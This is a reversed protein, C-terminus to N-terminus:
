RLKKAERLEEIRRVAEHRTGDDADTALRELSEATTNPHKAVCQRIFYDNENALYTLITAPTTPNRALSILVCRAPDKAFRALVAEPCKPNEAVVKRVDPDPHSSLLELVDSPVNSNGVLALSIRTGKGANRALAELTSRPANPNGGVAARIGMWRDKGLRELTDPATKPNAAVACRVMEARDQALAELIDTGIKENEAAVKRVTDSRHEAIEKLIEATCSPHQTIYEFLQVGTGRVLIKLVAETANPHKVVVFRTERNGHEAFHALIAEPADARKAIIKQVSEDEDDCLADLIKKPTEPHRAVEMRAAICPSKMLKELLEHPPKTDLFRRLESSCYTLRKQEAEKLIMDCQQEQNMAPLVELAKKATEGTKEPTASPSATQGPQAGNARRNSAKALSVLNGREDIAANPLDVSAHKEINFVEYKVGDIELSGGHCLRETLADAKASERVIAAPKGSFEGGRARYNESQWDGPLQRFIAEAVKGSIKVDEVTVPLDAACWTEGTEPDVGRRDAGLKVPALKVEAADGYRQAIAAGSLEGADYLRQLSNGLVMQRKPSSGSRTEGRKDAAQGGTLERLLGDDQGEGDGLEAKAIKETTLDKPDYAQVHWENPEIIVTGEATKDAFVPHGVCTRLIRGNRQTLKADSATPELWIACRLAPVDWGESVKSVTVMVDLEGADLLSKAEDPSIDGKASTSRRAKLGRSRFYQAYTEASSIRNCFAVAPLKGGPAKAKEDLYADTLGIAVPVGREDRFVTRKRLQADTGFSADNAVNAFAAGVLRIRPLLIDGDRAVDELRVRLATPYKDGVSKDLLDPTATFLLQIKRGGLASVKDTAANEKELADLGRQATQADLPADVPLGLADRIEDALGSEDSKQRGVVNAVTEQTAAGISRHAEDRVVVQVADCLARFTEPSNAELALLTQYTTVVIRTKGESRALAQRVRSGSNGAGDESSLGIIETDASFVGDEKLSGLGPRKGTQPDPTEGVTGAVLAINPVLVLGSLGTAALIEGFLRTKGSGTPLVILAETKGERLFRVVAEVGLKQVRRLGQRDKLNREIRDALQAVANQSSAGLASAVAEQTKKTKAANARAAQSAQIKAIQEARRAAKQEPTEM